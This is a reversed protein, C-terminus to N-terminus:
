GHRIYLMAAGEDLGGAEPRGSCRAPGWCHADKGVPHDQEQCREQGGRAATAAGVPLWGAPLGFVPLSWRKHAAPCHMILCRRLCCRIHSVIHQLLVRCRFHVMDVNLQAHPSWRRRQWAGTHTECAAATQRLLLRLGIIIDDYVCAM